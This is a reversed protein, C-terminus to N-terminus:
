KVAETDILEHYGHCATCAREPEGSKRAKKIERAHMKESPYAAPSHCTLCFVKMAQGRFIADPPTKRVEDAMHPESPGHCRACTVGHEQHEETLEEEKFDIHCEYCRANAKKAEAESLLATRVVDEDEEDHDEGHQEEREHGDAAAPPGTWGAWLGVALFGALLSLASLRTRRRIM